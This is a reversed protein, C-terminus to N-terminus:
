MHGLLNTCFNMVGSDLCYFFFFLFYALYENISFHSFINHYFINETFYGIILITRQLKYIFNLVRSFLAM